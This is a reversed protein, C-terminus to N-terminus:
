AAVADQEQDGLITAIDVVEQPDDCGYAEAVEAHSFGNTFLMYLYAKISDRMYEIDQQAV